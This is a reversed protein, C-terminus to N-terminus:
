ISQLQPCRKEATVDCGEMNRQEVTRTHSTTSSPALSKILVLFNTKKRHGGKARHGEKEALFQRKLCRYFLRVLLCWATTSAVAMTLAPAVWAQYLDVSEEGSDCLRVRALCKDKTCLDILAEQKAYFFHVDEDDLTSNNQTRCMLIPPGDSGVNRPPVWILLPMAVLAVSLMLSSGMVSKLNMRSKGKRGEGDSGGAVLLLKGM